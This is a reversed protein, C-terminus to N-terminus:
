WVERANEIGYEMESEQHQLFRALRSEQSDNNVEESLVVAQRSPRLKSKIREMCSLHGLAAMNAIGLSVYCDNEEKDAHDYKVKGSDMEESELSALEELLKHSYIQVWGSRIAYELYEDRMPISWGVSAWGRRMSRQGPKKALDFREMYYFNSYGLNACHDSIFDGTAIQVEPALLAEPVPSMFQGYYLCIAIVFSAGDYSGIWRSAFEGVQVAPESNDGTRLVEVVFKNQGIGTGIDVAVTYRYGPKPKEWVRLYFDCKEEEEDPTEKLPIMRWHFSRGQTPSSWNIDIRHAAPSQFERLSYRSPIGDGQIAYDTYKAKEANKSLEDLTEVEFVSTKVSQFATREDSALEARFSKYEDEDNSNKAEWYSFEYYWMQEVPMEWSPGLYQRLRPTTAVYLKAERAQKMTEQMPKWNAPIPHNRIFDPTPYKDRGVYWPLFSCMFRNYGTEEGKRNKLWQQHFWDGKKRATSELVLFTRPNEHMARILSSQITEIPDPFYAVESVHAAVPTSGRAIGKKQSGHQILIDSGNEGFEPGIQRNERTLTPQMWLPMHELALWVMESMEVSKQEEASAIVCHSGRRFLAIWLIMAEILTSIGLQRAKLSFLLIPLSLLDKEALMDIVIKQAILEEPLVITNDLRKIHFYRYFWYVFSCACMLLENRVFSQEWDAFAFSEASALSGDHNKRCYWQSKGDTQTMERFHECIQHCEQVSYERLELRNDREADKVKQAIIQSHLM